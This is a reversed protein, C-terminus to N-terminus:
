WDRDPKKQRCIHILDPLRGNRSLSLVLDKTIEQILKNEFNDTRYGLEFIIDLLETRNFADMLNKRLIVLDFGGTQNLPILLDDSDQSYLQPRDTPVESEGVVELTFQHTKAHARGRRDLYEMVLWLPVSSGHQRPQVLISHRYTQNPALTFITSTHVEEAKFFDGTLRVMMNRAPGFGENRVVYKIESWANVEMSEPEIDLTLIPERRYRAVERLCRRRTEKDGSEAFARAAQEWAAAKDEDDAEGLSLVRARQRYAEARKGYRDLQQWIDAAKEWAEGAEYQRAAQELEGMEHWMEAAQLHRGALTLREVLGQRQRLLTEPDPETEPEPEPEPPRELAAVRGGRDAVLLANPALVPPQEIRRTMEHQWLIKGELDLAYLLHDQCTVYLLNNYLLPPAVIARSTRFTWIVRGNKADVALLGQRAGLYLINNGLIPSTLPRGNGIEAKWVLKLTEPELCFLTGMTSVAFVKETTVLPTEALWERSSGQVQFQAQTNNQIDVALLNPRRCPVYIFKGSVAPAALSANSNLEIQQVNHPDITLDLLVLTKGGITLIARGNYIIPQSYHQAPGPWWWLRKGSDDFAILQGEGKLFDTSSTAVLAFSEAQGPLDVRVLGSIAAYEFDHQWQKSGDNLSLAQLRGHQTEKGPSQTPLLLTEGLPMPPQIITQAINTQWLIKQNLAPM